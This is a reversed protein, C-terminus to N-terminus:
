AAGRRRPQSRATTIKNTHHPLLIYNPKERCPRIVTKNEAESRHQLIHAQAPTRATYTYTHARRAMLQAFALLRFCFLAM